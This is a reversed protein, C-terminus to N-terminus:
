QGGTLDQDYFADYGLEHLERVLSQVIKQDARAYSVFVMPM